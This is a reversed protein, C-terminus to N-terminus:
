LCTTLSARTIDCIENSKDVGEWRLDPSKATGTAGTRSAPSRGAALSPTHQRPQQAAAGACVRRLSGRAPRSCLPCSLCNRFVLFGQVQSGSMFPLTPPSAEQRLALHGRESEGEWAPRLGALLM